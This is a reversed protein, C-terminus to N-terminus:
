TPSKNLSRWDSSVPWGGEFLRFPEPRLVRAKGRAEVVQRLDVTELASVGLGLRGVFAGQRDPLLRQTGLVRTNGRAEVVQRPEVVVLALVGLRLRPVLPRQRDVLRGEPRLM